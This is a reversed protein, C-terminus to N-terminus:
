GTYRIVWTYNQLYDNFRSQSSLIEAFDEISELDSGDNSEIYIKDPNTIDENFLIPQVYSIKYGLDVLYQQMTDILKSAKAALARDIIDVTYKGSEVRYKAFMLSTYIYDVMYSVHNLRNVMKEQEENLNDCLPILTIIVDKEHDLEIGCAKIQNFLVLSHTTSSNTEFVNKRVIKM